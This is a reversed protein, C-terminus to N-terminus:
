AVVAKKAKVTVKGPLYGTVTATVIVGITKGKLRAPIKFSSAKATAINTAKSGVMTVWQYTYAAGTKSWTGTTVRITQGVKMTGSIVPSKGSLPTIATGLAITKATASATAKGGGTATAEVSCTLQKNRDAATPTYTTSTASGTIQKVMVNAVKLTFKYTSADLWTGARCTVASGVKPSGLSPAVNNVPVIKGYITLSSEESESALFSDDEPTFSAVVDYAKPLGSGAGGPLTSYDLTASGATVPATGLIIAQAGASRPTATFTVEGTADSPSLTATFTVEDSEYVGVTPNIGLAVSTETGSSAPDETQYATPSTFWMKAYGLVAQPQNLNLGYCLWTFLYEGDLTVAPSQEAAKDARTGDFGIRLGGLSARDVARGGGTVNIGAVPFGPGTLVIQVNTSATQNPCITSSDFFVASTSTGSTPTITMVDATPPNLVGVKTSSTTNSSTYGNSSSTFEASIDYYAFEGALTGPALTSTSLSAVGSNVVGSGLLTRAGGAVPTAFFEVAGTAAAASVTATFEVTEGSTLLQKSAVVSTTTKTVSAWAKTNADTIYIKTEFADLVTTGFNGQYCNATFTYVGSLTAVPDQAAAAESLSELLPLNYNAGQVKSEVADKGTMGYGDNPFGTGTLLVRIKDGESCQGATVLNIASEKAGSAPSVTMAKPTIVASAQPVALALSAASIAATALISTLKRM